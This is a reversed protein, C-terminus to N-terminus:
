SLKHRLRLAGEDDCPPCMFFPSCKLGETMGDNEGDRENGNWDVRILISQYFHWRGGLM